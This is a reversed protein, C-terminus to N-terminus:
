STVITILRKLYLEWIGKGQEDDVRQLFDLEQNQQEKRQKVIMLAEEIEQFDVASEKTFFSMKDKLEDHEEKLQFYQRRMDRHEEEM